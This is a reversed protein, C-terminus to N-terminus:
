KFIFVAQLDQFKMYKNSSIEFKIIDGNDFEAMYYQIPKDKSPSGDYVSANEMKKALSTIAKESIGEGRFENTDSEYLAQLQNSDSLRIVFKSLVDAPKENEDFWKSSAFMGASSSSTAAPNKNGAQVPVKEAETHGFPLFMKACVGAVVFLSVCAAILFPKRYNHHSNKKENEMKKALEEVFKKDPLIQDMKQKYEDQFSM